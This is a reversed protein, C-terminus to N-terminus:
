QKVPGSKTMDDIKKAAQDKLEIAKDMSKHGIVAAKDKVTDLTTKETAKFAPALNLADKSLAVVIIRAGDKDTNYTLAGFPIAVSKEGIGLFGGVGLVVTSIRGSRDFVLDNIDGVREGSANQVDAGLFVRALWESPPQETIFNVAAAPNPAQALVQLPLLPALLAFASALFIMNPKM